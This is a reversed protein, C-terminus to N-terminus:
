RLTSGQLVQLRYNEEIEPDESSVFHWITDEKIFLFTKEIKEIMGAREIKFQVLATAYDKMLEIKVVKLGILVERKKKSLFDVEFKRFNVRKKTFSSQKDFLERSKAKEYFICLDFISSKSRIEENYNDLVERDKAKAFLSAENILKLASDFNFEKERIRAMLLRSKVDLSDQSINDNLLEKARDTKNEKILIAALRRKAYSFDPNVKLANEFYSLSKFPYKEIGDIGRLYYLFAREDIKKLSIEKVINYVEESIDMPYLFIGKQLEQYAEIERKLFVLSRARYYYAIAKEENTKAYKLATDICKIANEYESKSEMIRSIDTYVVFGPPHDDIKIRYKLFSYDKYGKIRPFLNAEDIIGNTSSIVQKYHVWARSYFLDETYIHGLLIKASYYNDYLTVAIKLKKEAEETKGELYFAGGWLYFIPPYDSFNQQAIRFEERANEYYKQELYKIGQLIKIESDGLTHPKECRNCNISFILFIFICYYKKRSM